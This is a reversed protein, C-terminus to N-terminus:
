RNRLADRINEESEDLAKFIESKSSSINEGLLQIKDRLARVKGELSEDEINLDNEECVIKLFEAVNNQKNWGMLTEVEIIMGLLERADAIVKGDKVRGYTDGMISILLNLMIVPNVITIIFFLVWTLADNPNNPLEGLNQKYSLLFFDIMTVPNGEIFEENHSLSQMVLGFALTSYFLLIFFAIIDVSAEIILNILYRTREFIRFYTVGRLWSFLVTMTFLSKATEGTFGSWVMICYTNFLLGRTIDVYNWLDSFYDLGSTYMQLGEYAFLVTSIIFPFVMFWTEEWFFVSYVGLLALYALYVIAQVAIFWKVQSWKMNLIVQILKTYYIKDNECELLSSLFTISKESGPYLNMRFASQGFAIATGEIAFVSTDPFDSEDVTPDACVAVIPLNTSENCFKPLTPDNCRVLGMEYIRHLNGFGMLNLGLLSDSLQYFAWEDGAEFRHKLAKFINEISDLFNKELAISMGTHGTRCPFFPARNSIAERLMEGKNSNAFIHVTNIHYPEIIWNDYEKTYQPSSGMAKNLYRIYDYIREYDGHISLTKAKLPNSVVTTERGSTVMILSEDASLAFDIIGSITKIECLVDFNDLDRITITNDYCSMFFDLDDTFYVKNGTFNKVTNILGVRKLGWIELEPADTSTFLYENDKSVQMLRIGYRDEITNIEEFKIMDYVKITGESGASFLRTDDYSATLTLVEGKHSRFIKVSKMDAFNLINVRVSEGTVIYKESPFVIGSLVSELQIEDERIKKSNTLSWVLFVFKEDKKAFVYFFDHKPNFSYCIVSYEGLNIEPQKEGLYNYGILTDVSMGFAASTGAGLNEFSHDHPLAIQENFKPIKWACVKCDDAVSFVTSQDKSILTFKVWDTHGTMTIEKRFKKLDWIKIHHDLGATVLFSEDLALDMFRVREPNHGELKRMLEWSGFKWMCITGSQEGCVVFNNGSSIKVCWVGSSADRLTALEQRTILNFVKVVRDGSCSAIYNEDVSLDVCYVVANHSYLVTDRSEEPSKDLNWMRITRDDSGTYMFKEDKSVQIFNIEDTHGLFEDVVTLNSFLIKKITGSAGASLVYKDNEILTMTWISGQGLDVDLTVQKTVRDVVGLRGERSGFVYKKEDQTMVLSSGKFPTDIMAPMLDKIYATAKNIDDKVGVSEPVDAVSQFLKISSTKNMNVMEFTKEPLLPTSLQNDAM